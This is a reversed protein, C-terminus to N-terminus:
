SNAFAKIDDAHKLLLKCTNKSWSAKGRLEPYEAMKQNSTKDVRYIKLYPDGKYNEIFARTTTNSDMVEKTAANVETLRGGAKVFGLAAASAIRQLAEKDNVSKLLELLAQSNETNESM